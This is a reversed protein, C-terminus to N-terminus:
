SNLYVSIFNMIEDKQDAEFWSIDRDKSWWTKQRKAFRRTNRKILEIAQERSIKGEFYNFFEKYGVSNLANLHRFNYLSGAEEELGRDIMDSVRNNIREYLDNRPRDIGIKLIKFDRERKQKKLFSSYSRGTSECIELARMIRKPNKLDVKTYHEPDLLRLAMRLGEIGEERYKLIIKERVAPDVDPIDDIGDCVADIYM